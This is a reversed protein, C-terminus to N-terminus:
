SGLPTGRVLRAYEHLFVMALVFVAFLFMHWLGDGYSRQVFYQREAETLSYHTCHLYLTRDTDISDEPEPRVPGGGGDELLVKTDKDLIKMRILVDMFESIRAGRALDVSGKLTAFPPRILRYSVTVTSASAM